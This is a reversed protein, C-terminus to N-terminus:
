ESVPEGPSGNWICDGFRCAITFAPFHKNVPVQYPQRRLPEELVQCICFLISSALWQVAHLTRLSLTPSPVSPALPTRLRIPLVVTDVPWVGPAGPSQVVLWVYIHLSGHSEGCIHCPIARNSM